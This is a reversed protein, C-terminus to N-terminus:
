TAVSNPTTLRCPFLTLSLTLDRMPIACGFNLSSNVYAAFFLHQIQLYLNSTTRSNFAINKITGIVFIKQGFAARAPTSKPLLLDLHCGPFQHLYPLDRFFKADCYRRNALIFRGPDHQGYSCEAFMSEKRIIVQEPQGAYTIHYSVPSHSKFRDLSHDRHDRAPFQSLTVDVLPELAGGIRVIRHRAPKKGPGPRVTRRRIAPRADYVFPDSVTLVHLYQDGLQDIRLPSM